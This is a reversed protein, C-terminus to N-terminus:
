SWNPMRSRKWGCNSRRAVRSAEILGLGGNMGFEELRAAADISWHSDPPQSTRATLFAALEVDSRPAGGLGDSARHACGSRGSRGICRRGCEFFHATLILRAM